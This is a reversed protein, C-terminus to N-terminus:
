LIWQCAVMIIGMVLIYSAEIAIAANGKQAYKGNSVVLLVITALLLATTYFANGAVTIGILWSLCLTGLAQTIMAFVPIVGDCELSVGVGTAWKTGFVRPSYWLWGLLFSAVFGVLVALWNVGVLVENM